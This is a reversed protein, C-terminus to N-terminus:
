NREVPTNVIALYDAPNMYQPVYTVGQQLLAKVFARLHNRSGKLLNEYVLRIDQNDVNVLAAQIDVIDIEEIAAGVKLAEVLSPGGAAALQTYLAQLTPNQFQGAGLSAAPDPLNYRLLLQRVAETHTAESTAINAFTKVSTGWLSALHVYVDHALKEEESMYALTAQEALSLTESPLAVLTTGLATSDFTSVGEADVVLPPGGNDGGGGGCASLVLATLLAASLTTLTKNM